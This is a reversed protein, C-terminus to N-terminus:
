QNGLIASNTSNNGVMDQLQKQRAAQSAFGFLSNLGGFQNGMQQTQLNGLPGLTQALTNARTANVKGALETARAGWQSNRGAMADRAAIEKKMMEYEPSGPAYSGNIQARVGNIYDQQKNAMQNKAYMDYLSGALQMGSLGSRGGLLQALGPITSGQPGVVNGGSLINQMPNGATAGQAAVTGQGIDSGWGVDGLGPVSFASQMPSSFSTGMSRSPVNAQDNIGLGTGSGLGSNMSSTDTGLDMGWGASGPGGGGSFLDGLGTGLGQGTLYGVGMGAVQELLPTNLSSVANQAGQTADNVGGLIKNGFDGIADMAGSLPNDSSDCM